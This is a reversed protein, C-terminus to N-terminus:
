KEKKLINSLHILINNFYNEKELNQEAHAGLIHNEINKIQKKIFEFADKSLNKELKGIYLEHPALICKEGTFITDIILYSKGSCKVALENKIKYGNSALFEHLKEEYKMPNLIFRKKHLKEKWTCSNLINSIMNGGMGAIIIEDAEAEQINLLGDSLRTEIISELGYNKINKQANKLPGISIDCALAHSIKKQMALYIPIYAHDTGIDAIKSNFSVMDACKKLRNSIKFNNM